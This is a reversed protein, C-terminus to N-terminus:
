RYTRHVALRRRESALMGTQEAANLVSLLRPYSQLPSNRDITDSSSVKSANLKVISTFGLELLTNLM